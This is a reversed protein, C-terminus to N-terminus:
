SNKDIDVGLWDLLVDRQHEGLMPSSKRIEGQTRSMKIPVGAMAVQGAVPHTVTQIMQRSLVQPDAIVRDVTNIPGNPVGAEDLIGQWELTTKKRTEEGIREALERVNQVRMPNTQFSLMEPWEDHGLEHSLKQFLVDNGAAIMLEGDQTPFSEFPAISPHRNGAPRPIEGTILFRSIANELIAVQCDLMAVDVKQGEGTLDRHRLASLIGIVCFLGSTIDGISTGVRVGSGGEPGTISILGGMAQVVADYAPRQSYPGSHGFGSVAAYILDPNSIRLEEYGIGLKEMTGPRFNEVVVDASAVLQVFIAKDEKQKLNLVISRKNRNISMFYTSEGHLYPGFHRSDDGVGPVEVKVVDAGLDAMVMTAFPGALVRTLDLIRIGELSQRM